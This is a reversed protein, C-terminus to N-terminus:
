VINEGWILISENILSFFFVTDKKLQKLKQPTIVLLKTDQGTLNRIQKTIKGLYEEGPYKKVKVWVDVDSELTNTGKAWSGYIGLGCIKTKDIKEINIKSLSLLVKTYRVFCNDRLLYHKKKILIGEKVLTKLYQSVLGKSLRLNSYVESVKVNRRVLVYDLIRVREPSSFLIQLNM